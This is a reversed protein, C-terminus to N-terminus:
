GYMTASILRHHLGGAASLLVALGPLPAPNFTANML